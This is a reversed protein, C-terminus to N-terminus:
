CSLRTLRMITWILQFQVGASKSERISVIVMECVSVSVTVDVAAVVVLVTGTGLPKM